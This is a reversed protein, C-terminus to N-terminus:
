QLLFKENICQRFTAQLTTVVPSNKQLYMHPLLTSSFTIIEVSTTDYCRSNDCSRFRPDDCLTVTQENDFYTISERERQDTAINSLAEVHLRYCTLPKIDNVKSLLLVISVCKVERGLLSSHTTCYHYLIM